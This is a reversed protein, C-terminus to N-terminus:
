DVKARRCRRTAAVYTERFACSVFDAVNKWIDLMFSVVGDDEKPKEDPMDSYLSGAGLSSNKKFIGDFKRKQQQLVKRQYKSIVDLDRKIARAISGDPDTEPSLREAVDSFDAKAQDWDRRHKHALARRYKAKINWEDRKLAINCLALVEEYEKTKLKCAAQNVLCVNMLSEREEREKETPRGNEWQQELSLLAKGYQKFASVPKNQSFLLKGKERRGRAYELRDEVTMQHLNKEKESGLVEVTMILMGCGDPVNEPKRSRSYGYGEGIEIKSKEGFQMSVVAIELGKPVQAHGLMFDYEEERSDLFVTGDELEGYLHVYVRTLVTPCSGRGKKIIFKRVKGDDTVNIWRGAEQAAVKAEHDAIVHSKAGKASKETNEKVDPTVDDVEEIQVM